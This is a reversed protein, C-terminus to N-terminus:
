QFILCPGIQSYNDISRFMGFPCIGHFARVGFMLKSFYGEYGPINYKFGAFINYTFRRSDSGSKDASIDTLTLDYGYLVRNRIEVSVVAAFGNKSANSQFQYQLYGEWPSRTPHVAKSNGDGAKENVDYWGKEPKWLLMVGARFSHLSLYRNEPENLTVALETYNYSVNVRRLVYENEMRQIQLEDGIHTSEHKFPSWSVSWNKAFGDGLRMMYIFTPAGIRYDTDVVPATLSEFLDLWLNASLELSSAIAHKKDASEFRFIPIDIGFLGLAQPRYSKGTKGFDYIPNNTHASVDLRLFAPHSDALFSKGYPTHRFMTFEQFYSMEPIRILAAIFLSAIKKMMVFNAVFNRNHLRFAFCVGDDQVCHLIEGVLM